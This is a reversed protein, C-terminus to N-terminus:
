RTFKDWLQRDYATLEGLALNLTTKQTEVMDVLALTEKKGLPWKLRKLARDFKSQSDKPASAVLTEDLRALTSRCNEVLTQFRDKKEQSHSLSGVGQLGVLVGSLNTLSTTLANAERPASEVASGYAYCKSLVSGALGILGAVSATASLPDM